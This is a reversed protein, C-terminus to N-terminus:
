RAANVFCEVRDAMERPAANRKFFEVFGIEPLVLYTFTSHDVLYYDPDANEEIKFYAKYARTAELIQEMTGTYGIADPHLFDTFDRLRAPDDRGPDVSIMAMQAEYGDANLMDITEANRANDTPCIDPCFTYGFYLLTPKLFMDADTVAAGNEDILSMPGGISAVGTGIQTERCQAYPDSGDARTFFWTLGALAVLGISAVVAIANRM